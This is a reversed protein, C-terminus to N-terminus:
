PLLSMVAIGALIAAGATAAAVRVTQGRTLRFFGFRAFAAPPTFAFSLLLLAAVALLIPSWLSRKAPNAIAVATPHRHTRTRAVPVHRVPALPARKAAPRRKLPTVLRTAAPHRKKFVPFKGGHQRLWASVERTEAFIVKGDAWVLAGHHGPAVPTVNPQTEHAYVVIATFIAAPLALLLVFARVPSVGRPRAGKGPVM